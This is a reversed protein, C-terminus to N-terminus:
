DNVVKPPEYADLVEQYRAIQMDIITVKAQLRARRDELDSIKVIESVTYHEFIEVTGEKKYKIDKIEKAM